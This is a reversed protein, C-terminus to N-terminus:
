SFPLDNRPTSNEELMRQLAASFKAGALCLLILGFGRDFLVFIVFAAFVYVGAREPRMAPSRSNKNIFLALKRSWKFSWYFQYLPILHFWAARIPRVPYEGGTVYALVVHYEYVCVLWYALSIFSPLFLYLPPVVLPLKTIEPHQSIATIEAIVTIVGLVYGIWLRPLRPIEDLKLRRTPKEEGSFQM